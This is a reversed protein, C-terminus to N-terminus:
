WQYVINQCSEGILHYFRYSKLHINVRMKGSRYCSVQGFVHFLKVRQKRCFYVYKINIVQEPMAHGLKRADCVQGYIRQTCTFLECIGVIVTHHYITHNIQPARRKQTTIWNCRCQESLLLWCASPWGYTELITKCRIDHEAIVETAFRKMCIAENIIWPFNFCNSPLNTVSIILVFPEM